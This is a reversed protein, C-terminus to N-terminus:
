GSGPQDGVLFSLWKCRHSEEWLRLCSCSSCGRVPCRPKASVPWRPSMSPLVVSPLFFHLFPLWPTSILSATGEKESQVYYFSKHSVTNYLMRRYHYKFISCRRWIVHSHKTFQRSFSIPKKWNTMRNKHALVMLRFNWHEALLKKRQWVSQIQAIIVM